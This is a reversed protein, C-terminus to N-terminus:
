EIAENVANSLKNIIDEKMEQLSSRMYSRMPMEFTAKGGVKPKGKGTGLRTRVTGGYEHIAAYRIGRTSVTGVVNDTETVVNSTISRFLNGTRRNLAGGNLKDDVVKSKLENIVEEMTRSLKNGLTKPMSNFKVSIIDLGTEKIEM